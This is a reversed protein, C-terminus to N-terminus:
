PRSTESSRHQLRPFRFRTARRVHPHRSNLYADIVWVAPSSGFAVLSVSHYTLATIALSSVWGLPVIAMVIRTTGAVAALDLAAAVLRGARAFAAVPHPAEEDSRDTSRREDTVSGVLDDRWRLDHGVLAAQGRVVREARRDGNPFLRCFEDVIPDPDAGIEEAYARVYARAYLGTPWRSFDGRELGVWLEPSVKTSEAIQQLSVGRQVRIRRLNPGFAAQESM